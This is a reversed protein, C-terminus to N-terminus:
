MKEVDVYLRAGRVRYGEFSKGSLHMEVLRRIEPDELDVVECGDDVILHDHYAPTIDYIKRGTSLVRGILGSEAMTELINYVAAVTVVPLTRRVESVISDVSAHGLLALARYVAIRQNTVKLGAARLRGGIDEIGQREEMPIPNVSAFIYYNKFM